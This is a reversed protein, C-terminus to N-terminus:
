PIVLILACPKVSLCVSNFLSLYINLSGFTEFIVKIPRLMLSAHSRYVKWTCIALRLVHAFRSQM